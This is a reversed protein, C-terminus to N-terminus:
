WPELLVGNGDTAGSSAYMGLAIIWFAISLLVSCGTCTEGIPMWGEDKTGIIIFYCYGLCCPILFVLLSAVGWGIKGTYWHGVAVWNLFFSLWFATMQSKRHYNCQTGNQSEFTAWEDDCVCATMEDNCVGQYNCMASTTCNFTSNWSAIDNFKEEAPNNLYLKFNDYVSFGEILCFSLSLLVFFGRGIKM